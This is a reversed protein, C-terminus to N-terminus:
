GRRFHDAQTEAAASQLQLALLMADMKSIAVSFESASENSRLVLIVLQEPGSATIGDARDVRYRALTQVNSMRLVIAVFRAHM